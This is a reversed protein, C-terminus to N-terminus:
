NFYLMHVYSRSLLKLNTDSKPLLVLSPHTHLSGYKRLKGTEQQQWVLQVGAGDAQWAANLFSAHQMWSHLQRQNNRSHKPRNNLLCCPQCNMSKIARVLLERVSIPRPSTVVSWVALSKLVEGRCQMSIPQLLVFRFTHVRKSRHFFHLLKFACCTSM